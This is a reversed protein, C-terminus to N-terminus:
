NDIMVKILNNVFFDKENRPKLELMQVFTIDNSIDKLIKPNLSNLNLKCNNIIDVFHPTFKRRCVHQTIHRLQLFECTVMLSLCNTFTVNEDM